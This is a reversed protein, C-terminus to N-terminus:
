KEGENQIFNNILLCDIFWANLHLLFDPLCKKAKSNGMKKKRSNQSISLCGIVEDNLENKRLIKVVLEVGSWGM